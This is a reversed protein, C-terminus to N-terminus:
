YFANIQKEIEMAVLIFMRLKGVKIGYKRWLATANVDCNHCSVVEM